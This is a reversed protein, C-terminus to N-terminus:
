CIIKSNGYIFWNQKNENQKRERYEKLRLNSFVPNGYRSIVWSNHQLESKKADEKICIALEELVKQEVAKQFSKIAEIINAEM